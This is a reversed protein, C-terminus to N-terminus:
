QSITTPTYFAHAILCKNSEKAYRTCVKRCSGKQLTLNHASDFHHPLSANVETCEQERIDEKEIFFILLLLCLLAFNM